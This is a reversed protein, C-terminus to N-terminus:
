FDCRNQKLDQLQHETIVSTSHLGRVHPICSSFLLPCTPLSAMEWFWVNRSPRYFCTHFCFFMPVVQYLSINYLESNAYYGCPVMQLVLYWFWLVLTVCGHMNLNMRWIRSFVLLFATSENFCNKSCNIDNVPEDVKASVAAFCEALEVVRFCKQQVLGRPYAFSEQFFIVVVTKSSKCTPTEEYAVIPESTKWNQPHFLSTCINSGADAVQVLGCVWTFNVSFTLYQCINEERFWSYLYHRFVYNTKRAPGTELDWIM